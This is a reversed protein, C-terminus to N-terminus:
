RLKVGAPCTGQIHRAIADPTIKYGLKAFERAIATFRVGTHRLAVNLDDRDKTSLGDPEADVWCVPCVNVPIPNADLLDAFAM